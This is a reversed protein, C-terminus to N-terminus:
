SAAALAAPNSAGLWIPGYKRRKMLVCWSVNAVAILYDANWDLVDAILADHHCAIPDDTCRHM